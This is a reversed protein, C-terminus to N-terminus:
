QCERLPLKQPNQTLVKRSFLRIRFWLYVSQMSERLKQPRKYALYTKLLIRQLISIEAYFGISRDWM